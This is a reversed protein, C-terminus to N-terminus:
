VGLTVLAFRDVEDGAHFMCLWADWGGNPAESVTIAPTTAEDAM